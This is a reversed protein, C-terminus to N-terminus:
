VTVYPAFTQTLMKVVATAEMLIVVAMIIKMMVCGMVKGTLTLADKIQTMLLIQLMVSANDLTQRTKSAAIVLTILTM